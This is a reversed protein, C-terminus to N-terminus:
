DKAYGKAILAKRLIAAEVDGANEAKKLWGMGKAIDRDVGKGLLYFKALERQAAPSPPRYTIEEVSGDSNIRETGYGGGSVSGRAEISSGDRQSGKALDLLIKRASEHDPPTLMQYHRAIELGANINNLGLWCYLTKLEQESYPEARAKSIKMQECGSWPVDTTPKAQLPVAGLTVAVLSLAIARRMM